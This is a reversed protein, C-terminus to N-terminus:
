SGAVMQELSGDQVVRKLWRVSLPWVPQPCKRRVTEWGWGEETTSSRASTPGFRRGSTYRRCRRRVDLQLTPSRNLDFDALLELQKARRQEQIAAQEEPSLLRINQYDVIAM